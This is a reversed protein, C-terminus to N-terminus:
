VLLRRCGAVPLSEGAALNVGLDVPTGSTRRGVRGRIGARSRGVAAEAAGSSRIEASRPTQIQCGPPSLTRKQEMVVPPGVRVRALGRRAVFSSCCRPALMAVKGKVPFRRVPALKPGM